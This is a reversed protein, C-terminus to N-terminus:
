RVRVAAGSCGQRGREFRVRVASEGHMELTLKVVFEAPRSTPEAKVPRVNHAMPMSPMDAGISVEVGTVPRDDRTLRVRCDYVLDRGTPKCNLTAQPAPTKAQAGCVAPLLILPAAAALVIARM